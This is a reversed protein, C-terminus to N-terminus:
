SLGRFACRVRGVVNQRSRLDRVAQRTAVRMREPDGPSVTLGYRTRAYIRATEVVAETLLGKEHIRAVLEDVSDSAVPVVGVDEAVIRVYEWLNEIRESPPTPLLPTVLHTTLLTRKAPRYLLFLFLLPWLTAGTDRAARMMKVLQKVLQETADKSPRPVDDVQEDASRERPIERDGKGTRWLYPALVAVVGFLLVAVGVLPLVNRRPVATVTAKSVVRRTASGSLSQWLELRLAQKAALYFIWTVLFGFLLALPVPLWASAKEQEWETVRGESNLIMFVSGIWGIAPWFSALLEWRHQLSLLGCPFAFCAFAIAPVLWSPLSLDSPASVVLYVALAVSITSVLFVPLLRARAIAVLQGLVTAVMGAACALVIEGLDSKEYVASAGVFALAGTASFVLYALAPRLALRLSAAYSPTWRAVHTRSM